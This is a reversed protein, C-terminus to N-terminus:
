KVPPNIRKSNNAKKEAHDKYLCDIQTLTRKVNKESKRLLRNIREKDKTM